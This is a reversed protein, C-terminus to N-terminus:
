CLRSLLGKVELLTYDTVNYELTNRLLVELVCTYNGEDSESLEQLVLSFSDLDVPTRTSRSM